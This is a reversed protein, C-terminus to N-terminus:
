MNLTTERLKRIEIINTSRNRNQLPQTIFYHFLLFVLIVIVIACLAVVLVSWGVNRTVWGDYDSNPIVVISLWNVSTQAPAYQVPQVNISLSGTDFYSEITFTDFNGYKLLYNASTHILWNEANSASIRVDSANALPQNISTSILLGTDQEIVYAIGTRGISLTSLYNNLETLSKEAFTSAYATKDGNCWYSREYTLSLEGLLNFIPLFIAKLNNNTFLTIEAPVLGNDHGTYVINSLDVSGGSYACFGDFGLNNATCAYIYDTCNLGFDNIAIECSIKDSFNPNATGSGNVAIIGISQMFTNNQFNLANLLSILPAYNFVGYFNSSYLPLTCNQLQQNTQEIALTTTIMASLLNNVAAQVNNQVGSLITPYSIYASGKNLTYTSAIVVIGFIILFTSLVIFVFTGLRIEM